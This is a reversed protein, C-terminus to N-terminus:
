ADRMGEPSIQIRKRQFYATNLEAPFYHKRQVWVFGEAKSVIAVDIPGGVTEAGRTVRRKISTLNVLAEAMRAMEPKPMFEVMSEIEAESRQRIVDFSEKALGKVFADEAARGEKQLMKADEDSIVLKDVLKNRIEPITKSCFNAIDRRIGDDLGYLFREVMEKQAFPMVRASVGDRDIDIVDDEGYKLCGGVIGYIQYPVLTPFLDDQGFGAVVVGTNTPGTERKRLLIKGIKIIESKQKDSLDSFIREALGLVIEKDKASYSFRGGIFKADPLKVLMGGLVKLQESLIEERLNEMTSGMDSGNKQADELASFIRKALASDYRSKIREFWPQINRYVYETKVSDPASRGKEALYHLFASAALTVRKFSKVKSRYDKVLVGVPIGSFNMDGNFMVAIPDYCSLEFLKDASDYVKQQDNGQSITVASDAALAVATKNLIAVEATM